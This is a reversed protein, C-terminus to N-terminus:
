LLYRETEPFTTKWSHWFEQYVNVKELKIGETNIPEGLLNYAIGLSSQLTDNKFTFTASNPRKFAVFSKNDNALVLVIDNNGLRDNVIRNTALMNWDYAKSFKGIKVGVVWSKEKWSLSDTRTLDGKSKGKEYRALSDYNEAFNDDMQLVKGEPFLKFWQSLGMQEFPVQPLERGKLTGVFAQGTSQQWWSKTTEDEFMANFHDMGVLRFQEIKGNVKPEYVRGTHCVSCYTVMIIKGGVTDIIQHHYALFSIPYANSEGNNSVSIVIRDEPIKSEARNKFVMLNPQLFMKDASMINNFVYLFGILIILSFIALFMGRKQKLIFYGSTFILAMFVGRFVWRYQNIFYAFDISNLTQSGPLPMIFYINLFEFIIFLIITAYFLKKM